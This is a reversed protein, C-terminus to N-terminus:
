QPPTLQQSYVAIRYKCLAGIRHLLHMQEQEQMFMRAQHGGSVFDRALKVDPIWAEGLFKERSKLLRSQDLTVRPATAQALLWLHRGAEPLKNLVEIIRCRSLFDQDPGPRYRAPCATEVLSV